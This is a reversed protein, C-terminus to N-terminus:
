VLRARLVTPGNPAPDDANPERTIWLRQADPVAVATTLQATARGDRAVTFTGASVRDRGRSFWLEYVEGGSSAPLGSVRLSVRTGAPATTLAARAAGAPGSLAVVRDASPG